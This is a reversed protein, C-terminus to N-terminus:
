CNSEDEKETNLLDIMTDTIDGEYLSMEVEIPTPDDTLKKGLFHNFFVIIGLALGISYPLDIIMTSDRSEDFFLKYYNQFVTPMQSDSHFSMIATASGSLLLLSVFAVKTWQWFVNPAKKKPSYDIVTDIEGVNNVTHGPVAKDIADIIDIVSLLSNEKKDGRLDMLRVDKLKPLLAAPAYIEAVDKLRLQRAGAVTVKKKPKVYIDM